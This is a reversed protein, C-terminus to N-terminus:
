VFAFIFFQYKYSYIARCNGIEGQTYRAILVIDFKQGMEGM